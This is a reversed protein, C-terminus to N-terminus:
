KEITLASMDELTYIPVLKGDQVHGIRKNVALIKKNDVIPYVVADDMIKEQLDDYIAQRKQDNLEMAGDTFLKDVEKNSYHFFNAFAGTAYLARYTDPDKGMIYGGLFLNYKTSDPKSNEKVIAVTDGGQLEVQIGAKQLQQQILTAQIKLSPDSPDYALNLKLGSVGAEKLLQKAKDVDTEYHNVKDNYFPNAPPLISYPLNFYKEDTYAATAIEKKNLAYFIAQRVKKDKLEKTLVNLGLYGVRNESYPYLNVDAKAVDKIDGPLIMAADVEGKQLAVKVTDANSIIRFTIHKIQPKGKYYSDNAEFHFYEGRKYEVLKYPGTGVPDAKLQSVSFDAEKEFVHKPIIYTETVINSLAAANASPLNFKVTHDDVKEVEVPKGDVWLADANGNEKKVKQQYTFVVDDATLPKGDSWKVDKKLHVTIAKGDKATEISEALENEATGDGQVRVLPSYIMNTVTLGWRDSTNIPNMSNPDGNIAYTFSNKDGNASSSQTKGSDTTKGCAVLGVLLFITLISKLWKKM